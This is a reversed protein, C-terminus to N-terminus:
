NLPWTYIYEGLQEVKLKKEFSYDTASCACDIVESHETFESLHIKSTFDLNGESHIKFITEKACWAMIHMQVNDPPIFDRERESLFKHRIRLVKGRILEIDLGTHTQEADHLIGLLDHSHSISISGNIGIVYPKGTAHYNLTLHTSPFLKGLLYLVAKKESERRSLSTKNTPNFYDLSLMALRLSSTLQRIEEM